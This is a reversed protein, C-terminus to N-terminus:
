KKIFNTIGNGSYAIWDGVINFKPISVTSVKVKSSGDLKMKYLKGGDNTNSYYIWGDDVLFSTLPAVKDNGILTKYGGSTSIRCINNESDIFYINNGYVNIYYSPENNLKDNSSGTRWISDNDGIHTFYISNGYVVFDRPSGWLIGHYSGDLNYIMISSYEDLVYILDGVIIMDYLVTENSLRQNSSGDTKVKYIKKDNNNIYYLWDGKINLDSGYATILKTKNSGDLKMKYISSNNPQYPGTISTDYQFYYVWDNQQTALGGNIINGETNGVNIGPKSIHNSVLVLDYINIVSDSNQDYNSKWGTDTSNLSYKQAIGALDFLDVIGDQNIDSLEFAHVKFSTCLPFILCIILILSLIHKNRRLQTSM